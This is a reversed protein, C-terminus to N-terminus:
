VADQEVWLMAYQGDEDFPLDRARIKLTIEHRLIEMLTVPAFMPLDEDRYVPRHDFEIGHDWDDFGLSFYMTQVKGDDGTHRIVVEAEAM